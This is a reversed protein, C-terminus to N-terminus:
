GALRRGDVHEYMNYPRCGAKRAQANPIGHVWQLGTVTLARGDIQTKVRLNIRNRARWANHVTRTTRSIV